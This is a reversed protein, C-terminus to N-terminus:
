RTERLVPASCRNLIGAIGAAASRACMGSVCPREHRCPGPLCDLSCSRSARLRARAERAIALARRCERRTRASFIAGAADARHDHDSPKPRRRATTAPRADGDIEARGDISSPRSTMALGLEVPKVARCGRGIRHPAARAELIIPAPRLPDIEFPDVGPKGSSPSSQTSRSASVPVKSRSALLSSM